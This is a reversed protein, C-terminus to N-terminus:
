DSKKSRIRLLYAINFVVSAGLLVGEGFAVPPIDGGYRKLLVGGLLCFMGLPLLTQENKILM